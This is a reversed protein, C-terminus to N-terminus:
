AAGESRPLRDRCNPEDSVRYRAVPPGARDESTIASMDHASLLSDTCDVAFPWVEHNTCNTSQRIEPRLGVIELEHPDTRGLARRRGAAVTCYCRRDRGLSETAESSVGQENVWDELHVVIKRLNRRSRRGSAEIRSRCLRGFGFEGRTRRFLRTLSGLECPRCCPRFVDDLAEEAISGHVVLYPITREM